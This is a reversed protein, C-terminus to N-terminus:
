GRSPKGFGRSPKAKKSGSGKRRAATAVEEYSKGAGSKKGTKFGAKRPVLPGDEGSGVGVTEKVKRKKKAAAAPRGLHNAGEGEVRVEASALADGGLAPEERRATGIVEDPHPVVIGVSGGRLDAREAAVLAVHRAHLKVARIEGLLGGPQHASGDVAVDDDPGDPLPVRELSHLRVATPDM